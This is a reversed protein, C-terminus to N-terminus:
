ARPTYGHAHIFTVSDANWVPTGDARHFVDSRRPNFTVLDADSIDPASNVATVTGIVYACVKRRGTVKIRDLCASQVRFEAGALTVDAVNAIVRGTSQDTISFDGRHLNYHVRLRRGILAKHEDSM